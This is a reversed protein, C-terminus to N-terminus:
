RQGYKVLELTGPSDRNIREVEALDLALVMGAEFVVWRRDLWAYYDHQVQYTATTM